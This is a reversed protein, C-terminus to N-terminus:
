IRVAVFLGKGVPVTTCRFEKDAAVLALFEACEEPHSLVNDVALLSGPKALIRQLHPWYGAYRSRDADLFVVDYYKQYEALFDGADCVEMRVYGDLKMERLHQKATKKREKNIELTRVSGGHDRVADALWLTSYGGSTGVELVKKAQKSRVMVTLLAATEPELSLWRNLRDAEGEDHQQYQQYLNELYQKLKAKM